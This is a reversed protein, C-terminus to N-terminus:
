DIIKNFKDKLGFKATFQDVASNFLKENSKSNIQDFGTDVARCNTQKLFLKNFQLLEEETLEEFM